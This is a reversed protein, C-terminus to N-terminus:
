ANREKILQKIDKIVRKNQYNTAITFCVNLDINSLNDFYFGKEFYLMDVVAREASAISINDTRNVGVPNFLINSKIKRFVFRDAGIKIKFSRNAVSYITSDYQFNVGARILVTQASIYSPVVLKNALEFRDYNQDIACLGSRLGILQGSQILRYIKTKLYNPNFIQWLLVLDKTEFVTMKSKLLSVIASEKNQIINTIM